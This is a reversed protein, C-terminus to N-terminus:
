TNFGELLSIRKTSYRYANEFDYLQKYCNEIDSYVGFMVYANYTEPTKENEIKVLLKLAANYDREKMLKKAEIHDRFYPISYDHDYDLVTYRYLEYEFTDVLSNEYADRDFELLPAQINKTIAKFLSLLGEIRQTDYVTRKCYEEAEDFHLTASKLSGTMVFKKGLEFNSTALLFNLEDDKEELMMIHRICAKYEKAAYAERITKIRAKKQYFFLDDSESVFYETPLGLGDAIHKLTDLSPAASGNEIASLMNRTIKNGALASQTMGKQKRAKKIKEGINM